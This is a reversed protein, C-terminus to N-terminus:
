KTTLIHNTCFSIQWSIMVQFQALASRVNTMKHQFSRQEKWNGTVNRNTQLHHDVHNLAPRRWNECIHIFVRCLLQLYKKESTDLIDHIFERKQGRFLVVNFKANHLNPEKRTPSSNKESWRGPDQHFFVLIVGTWVNLQQFNCNHPQLTNWITRWGFSWAVRVVASPTTISGDIPQTKHM